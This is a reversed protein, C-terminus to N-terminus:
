STPSTDKRCVSVGCVRGNGIRSLPQLRVGESPIYDSSSTTLDRRSCVRM